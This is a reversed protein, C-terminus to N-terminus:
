CRMHFSKLKEVNHHLPTWSECGYLLISLIVARYVAIKTCLKIEHRQWIRINLKGFTGSAKSIRHLVDADITASTSLVAGLYKVHDVYTLPHDALLIPPSTSIVGTHQQYLVETKKLSITFGFRRAFIDLCNVIHQIDEYSHAMLACDDAFLLERLINNSVKTKVQLHCLNFIGGTTRFEIEIGEQIDKFADTLVVSFLISFLTPALNSVPFNASQLKNEVVSAMMGEHFARILNVIKIPCGLKIFNEM